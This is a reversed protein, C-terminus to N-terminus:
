TLRYRVVDLAAWSANGSYDQIQLTGVGTGNVDIVGHIGSAVETPFRAKSAPVIAAPLTCLTQPQGATAPAKALGSLSVTGDGNVRYSPTWYPTGYTTWGGSLTLPQWTGATTASATRGHALWNGSSSISIVVTDGVAPTLYTAMRRVIIGDTTTVTGDTGVTAVVALRWDAGRVAPSTAGAQIAQQQLADALDAHIAIDSSM